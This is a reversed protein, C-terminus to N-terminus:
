FASGSHKTKQSKETYTFQTPLQYPKFIKCAAIATWRGCRPDRFRLYTGM